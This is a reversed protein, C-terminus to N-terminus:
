IGGGWSHFEWLLSGRRYSRWNLGEYPRKAEDFGTTAGEDYFERSHKIGDMNIEFYQEIEDRSLKDGTIRKSLEMCYRDYGASNSGHVGKLWMPYTYRPYIVPGFKHMRAHGVILVGNFKEIPERLTTIYRYTDQMPYIKVDDALYVAGNEYNIYGHYSYRKWHRMKNTIHKVYDRALADDTGLATTYVFGFRDPVIYPKLLATGKSRHLLQSNKCPYNTQEPTIYLVEHKEPLLANLVPEIRERYKDPTDHACLLVYLFEGKMGSLAKVHVHEWLLLRHELWEETITCNSAKLNIHSIIVFSSRRM